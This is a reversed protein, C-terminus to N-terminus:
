SSLSEALAQDLYFKKTEESFKEYDKLTKLNKPLNDFVQAQAQFTKTEGPTVLPEQNEPRVNRRPIHFDVKLYQPHKSDFKSKHVLKVTNWEFLEKIPLWKLDVVDKTVAYHSLVYGATVNQMKQLRRILYKPIQAFVASGYNLRSLILAEALTKRVHYPTFRSFNRLARLTGYSSKIIRNIQDNWTLNEDFLIGLLKVNHKQEISLGSSRILYSRDTGLQKSLRSSFFIIFQLKESNFLLNHNKSWVLLDRIDSELEKISDRINIIKCHRYITTDDAYQIAQSSIDNTLEIVYLNFLVPGLISGQPVGFNMPSCSSKQDDIQVYQDRDRLYSSLIKISDHSFNLKYLKNLLVRHDITDFAKSFDILITLTIESKKMAKRIDDRLKLLLTSTSHGKRFGSQTTNYLHNTEIYNCLQKLIVREFIKSM